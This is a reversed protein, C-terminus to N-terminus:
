DDSEEMTRIFIEYVFIAFLLWWIAATYEKSFYHIISNLIDVIFGGLMVLTYVIKLKNM